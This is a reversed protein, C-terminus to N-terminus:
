GSYLLFASLPAIGNDFSGFVIGVGITTLVIWVIQLVVRESRLLRPVVYLTLFVLAGYISLYQVFERLFPSAFPIIETADPYESGTLSDREEVLSYMALLLIVTAVWFEVRAVKKATDHFNM